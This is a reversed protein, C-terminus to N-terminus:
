LALWQSRLRVIDDSLNTLIVSRTSDRQQVALAVVM